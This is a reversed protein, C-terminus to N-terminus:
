LDFNGDVTVIPGSNSTSSTSDSQQKRKDSADAITDASSNSVVQNEGNFCEDFLPGFLSELDKMSTIVIMDATPVETSTTTCPRLNDKKVNYSTGANLNVSQKKQVNISTGLNLTGIEKKHRKRAEGLYYSYIMDNSGYSEELSSRSSGPAIVHHTKAFASETVKPWYQPSLKILSALLPSKVHYQEADHNTKGGNYSMDTSDPTTNSDVQPVYKIGKLLTSVTAAFDILVWFYVKRGGPYH